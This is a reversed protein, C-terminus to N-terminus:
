LRGLIRARLKGLLFCSQAAFSNLFDRRNNDTATDTAVLYQHEIVGKFFTARHRLHRGTGNFRAFRRISGDDALQELLCTDLSQM